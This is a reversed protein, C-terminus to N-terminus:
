QGASEQIPAISCGTEGLQRLAFVPASSLAQAATASRDCCRTRGM